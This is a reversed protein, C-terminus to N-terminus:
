KKVKIKVKSSEVSFDALLANKGSAVVKYYYTKKKKAKKDAFTTKKSTGVLTYKGNKKESRYIQYKTAGTVKNYSVTVTGKKNNKAKAAIKVGYIISSPKGSAYVDSGEYTMYSAIKTGKEGYACVTYYYKVGAKLRANDYATTGTISGDVGYYERYMVESASGTDDNSDKAILTGRVKYLKEDSNYVAMSTSRFVKYYKAGAVKKWTIKVTNKKEDYSAKISKVAALSISEKSSMWISYENKSNYSRVSVSVYEGNELGSITYKNKKVTVYTETAAKKRGYVDYVMYRIQYGTAYKDADWKVSVNNGKNTLVLNHPEELQMEVITKASINKLAKGDKYYAYVYYTYREGYKLKKDTYSTTKAKTITKVLEYKDNSVAFANKGTVETIDKDRESTRYIEYKTASAVKTWTLKVSNKSKKVAKLEINNVCSTTVTLNKYGSYSKVKRDPDYYYSRIKYTYKTGAKLNQDTYINDTITAIKKYKKGSLRYIEYGTNMGKSFTFKISNKGAKTNVSPTSIKGTYSVMNSAASMATYYTMAVPVNQYRENNKEDKVFIEKNVTTFPQKQANYLSTSTDYTYAAFTYNVGPELSFAGYSGDSGTVKYARVYTNIEKKRLETLADKLYLKKQKGQADTYYGYANLVDYNFYEPMKGDKFVYIVVNADVPTWSLQFSNGNNTKEVHLNQVVPINGNVSGTAAVVDSYSGDSIYGDEANGLRVCFYYYPLGGDITLDYYPTSTYIDDQDISDNEAKANKYADYLAGKKNYFQLFSDLNTIDLPKNSRIYYFRYNDAGNQANWSVAM